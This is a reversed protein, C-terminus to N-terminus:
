ASIGNIVDFNNLVFRYFDKSNENLKITLEGSNFEDLIESLKYYTYDTEKLMEWGNAYIEGDLETPLDFVIGSYNKNLYEKLQEQTKEEDHAISNKVIIEKIKKDQLGDINIYRNYGLELGLGNKNLEYIVKSM